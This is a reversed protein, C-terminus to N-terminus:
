WGCRGISMVRKVDVADVKDLARGGVGAITM